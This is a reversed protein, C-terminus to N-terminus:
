FFIRLAVSIHLGGSEEVFLSVNDCQLNIDLASIGLISPATDGRVLSGDGIETKIGSEFSKTM